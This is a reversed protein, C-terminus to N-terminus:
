DSRVPVGADRLAAELNRRAALPQAFAAPDCSIGHARCLRILALDYDIERAIDRLMDSRPSGIPQEAGGGGGHLRRRCAELDAFLAECSHGEPADCGAHRGGGGVDLSVALLESYMSTLKQRPNVTKIM